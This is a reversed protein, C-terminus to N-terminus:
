ASNKMEHFKLEADRPLVAFAASGAKELANELQMRVLENFGDYRAERFPMGFTQAYNAWDAISGRKYIVYACAELLYGLDDFDGIEIVTKNYPPKRYEIGDIDHQTILVQGEKPLVHKRPVSFFKFFGNDNMLEIVSIGWAKQLQIEQRLKRFQRLNIFDNETKIEVGAKNVFRLKNKTVGLVRKAVMRKLFADLLCDSYLDYLAARNGNIAEAHIHKVRWSHIDAESRAVPSVEINQILLGSEITQNDKKSIGENDM